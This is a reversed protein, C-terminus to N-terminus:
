AEDKSPLVVVDSRPLAAMRELNDVTSQYREFFRKWTPFGGMQAVSLIMVRHSAILLDRQAQLQQIETNKTAVLQELKARSKKSSREVATRIADQKKTYRDIMCRRADNRTIDTAHKFVSDRRRVVARATITENEAIMAELLEELIQNKDVM